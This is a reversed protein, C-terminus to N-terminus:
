LNNKKLVTELKEIAFDVEERNIILPPLFRLVNKYPGVVIIVVGPEEKSLGSQIKFASEPDPEKTKRDKVTEVAIFLGKGRVDGMVPHEEALKKLAKLFYAGVKASNEALKEEELVDLAALAASCSLPNGGFTSGHVGEKWVDMMEVKGIIGSVGPVGGGLSKGLSMIDPVTGSHECGFLTGTRGLGTLIEDYILPIDEKDCIKRLRQLFENPPVILGGAGQMPETIIGAPESIPSRSDTFLDEVFKACQVGCDPYELGFSCRYCYAWPAFIVGPVLPHLRRKTSRGWPGGCMSLSGFTNGFFSGFFSVIETKNTYFRALKLAAENAEAGSQSLAVKGGKLHGPAMKSIREELEARPVTVHSCGGILKEAQRKVAEVVKPHCNGTNLTGWGGALDLYRKGNVDKIWMGKAEDIIIPKEKALYRWFGSAPCEYDMIKKVIGDKWEESKM